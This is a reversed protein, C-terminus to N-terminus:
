IRRDKRRKRGSSLPTLVPEKQVNLFQEMRQEARPPPPFAKRCISPKKLAEPVKNKHCYM